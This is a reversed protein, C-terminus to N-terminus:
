PGAVVNTVRNLESATLEPYIPISLVHDCAKECNPFTGPGYGYHKLHKLLHIPKPYYVACGIKSKRLKQVLSDRNEVKITYQNYVHDSHGLKIPKQVNKLNKQYFLANEQRMKTWKDIYKLKVDLVGAQLADLRFNGGISEYQYKKVSSIGHQRNRILKEYLKEDNTTVMGGDGFAGLNKSPFFSFCGTKGMSGAKQGKWSSGIAQAADEVVFLDYKEAIENIKTMNACQGFLHVPIIAKTRNTIAPEILNEDINFTQENIDVFVPTAGIRIIVEVTAFFTFPTTIVEDGPGIGLTMLSILLADTGSSVGVAFKTECYDAFNKEFRSVVSGNIFQQSEIILSVVPTIEKKITKYQRTLDLLKIEM